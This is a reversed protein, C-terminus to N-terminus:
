TQGEGERKKERYAKSSHERVREARDEETTERQGRLTHVARVTLLPLQKCENIGWDIM